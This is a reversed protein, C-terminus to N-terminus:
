EFCYREMFEELTFVEDTSTEVILEEISLTNLHEVYEPISMDVEPDFDDHCLHEYENRLAEVLQHKTYTIKEPEM